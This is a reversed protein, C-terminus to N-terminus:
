YAGYHSALVANSVLEPSFPCADFILNWYARWISQLTFGIVLSAFHSPTLSNSSLPPFQLQFIAQKLSSNDINLDVSGVFFTRWVKQWAQIKLPCAFVFHDFDEVPYHCLPCAPSPFKTQLWANMIKRCPIKGHITRFWVTRSHHSLPIQWFSKWTTAPLSPLSSPAATTPLCMGRYLSQTLLSVSSPLDLLLCSLFPNLDFLRHDSVPTFPHSGLGAYQPPIFARVFFDMFKVVNTSVLKHLRKCLTPYRILRARSRIPQLCYSRGPNHEYLFSTSLSCLPKPVHALTEPTVVSSLPLTLCTTATTVVSKFLHPLADLAKFLLSFSSNIDKLPQPRLAPFLFPLRYDPPDSAFHHFFNLMRPLIISSRANSDPDLSFSSSEIDIRFDALLPVLWRLQLVGQQQQAHLLGLGGKSRPLCMTFYSLRPFIRHSVFASAISRLSDFFSLPVTVVRLVHWLKSLILSNLVTVRGRVSM